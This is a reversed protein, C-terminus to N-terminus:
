QSMIERHWIEVRLRRRAGITAVRDDRQRSRETEAHLSEEKPSPLKATARSRDPKSRVAKRHVDV